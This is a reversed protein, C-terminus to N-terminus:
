PLLGKVLADVVEDTPTDPDIPSTLRDFVLGEIAYHFLAIERRGGPLGAAENFAIDAELGARQWDGLAGALEPRRAAELRLEYLALTVERHTMLRQVIDRLYLAFLARSPQESARGALVEPTPALRTGIREFLGHILRERSRFYNSTTGLPVGAETDVARHTLGRSGERALVAIGADALANRREDNKVM